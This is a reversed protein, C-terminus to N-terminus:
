RIFVLNDENSLDQSFAYGAYDFATLENIKDINNEVIFRTMLGRAQKAFIAVTKYKGNKEEKFDVNLVKYNLQKKNIAKFYENSALNIITPNKEKSLIKNFEETLNNRWFDYLNDGEKNKLKTGMELRHEQILDFPRLMGYLGSLIILKKNLLKLEKNNFSKADITKYADGFFLDIAPKSNKYNHNKDWNQYRNFNLESLNDSLSMLEKIENISKGKLIDILEKSKLLFRPVSICDIETINQIQLRKAPSLVIIM